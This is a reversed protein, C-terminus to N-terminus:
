TPATGSERRCIRSTRRASGRRPRGRLAVGGGASVRERRLRPRADLLRRPAGRADRARLRDVPSLQRITEGHDGRSAAELGLVIRARVTAATDASAEADALLDRVAAVDAERDLRLRLEQEALRLERVDAADLESGTELYEPTVGLKRALMRLAKVSPSRAGAEIRSIYAYTIGPSSLDRQSFGQELRLRRLRDGVTEARTKGEDALGPDIM